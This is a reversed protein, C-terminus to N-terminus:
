FLFFSGVASRLQLSDEEATRRPTTRNGQKRQKKKKRKEKKKKRKNEKKNGLHFSNPHQEKANPQHPEAAIRAGPVQIAISRYRSTQNSENQSNNLNPKKLNRALRNARGRPGGVPPRCWCARVRIRKKEKSKRKKEIRKKGLKQRTEVLTSPEKKKELSLTPKKKQKFIFFILKGNRKEKRKEKRELRVSGSVGVDVRTFVFVCRNVLFFNLFFVFLVFFFFLLSLFPQFFFSDLRDHHRM